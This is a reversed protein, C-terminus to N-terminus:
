RLYSTRVQGFCDPQVNIRPNIMNTGAVQRRMSPQHWNVHRVFDNDVLNNSPFEAGIDPFVPVCGGDCQGSMLVRLRISEDINELAMKSAGTFSIVDTCRLPTSPNGHRKNFIQHSNVPAQVLLDPALLHYGLVPSVNTTGSPWFFKQM